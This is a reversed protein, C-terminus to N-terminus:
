SNRIVEDLPRIKLATIDARAKNIFHDLKGSVLDTEIQSDWDAWLEDAFEHLLNWRDGASLRRIAASIEPVASM